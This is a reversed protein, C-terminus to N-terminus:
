RRNKAAEIWGCRFTLGQPSVGSPLYALTGTASVDSGPRRGLQWDRVTSVDQMVDDVLPIAEGSVALRELGLPQAVLTRM